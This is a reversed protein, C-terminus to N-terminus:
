ILGIAFVHSGFVIESERVETVTTLHCSHNCCGVSSEMNYSKHKRCFLLALSGNLPVTTVAQRNGSLVFKPVFLRLKDM